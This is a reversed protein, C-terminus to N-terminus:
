EFSRTQVLPFYRPQMQRIGTAVSTLTTHVSDQRPDTKPSSRGAAKAASCIFFCSGTRKFEVTFGVRREGLLPFSSFAFYSGKVDPRMTRIGRAKGEMPQHDEAVSLRGKGLPVDLRLPHAASPALPVPEPGKRSQRTNRVAATGGRALGRRGPKENGQEQRFRKFEKM